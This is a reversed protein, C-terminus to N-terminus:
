KSNINRDGAGLMTEYEVRAQSLRTKHMKMSLEAQTKKNLETIYETATATGNELQSEVTKVVKQRLDVIQQDEQIKRKLSAIEEEIKSLSAKLQREFAREEENVSKQRLRIVEKRTGANKAAWFNWNLKLGIIYYEHLDNEFVNFGPRGYAATGFASLSPLLGTRALEKQYSLYRRNSDFLKFEPRMRTLIEDALDLSNVEPVALSRRGTLEEGILQGLIEYGAEINADIEISDQKIKILEAELIYRQSPLLVGNEVKANINEIQARLSESVSQLIESQNHALMIGYYVSNVQNKLQHMQVRISNIEQEGKAEELNKKIGVVGGNYIPQIVDLTVEYHDKSLDPGIPQAGGAVQFETVESQYTVKAGVNLQPYYGTHAIKKNLTTIENQLKLKEAIPYHNELRSYCYDLTLTDTSDTAFSGVILFLIVTITM